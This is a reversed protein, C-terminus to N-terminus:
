MAGSELLAQYDAGSYGLEALIEANNEGLNPAPHLRTGLISAIAGQPFMIRGFLPHEIETLFGRAVLQPDQALELPTSVPSVPFARKQGEEVLESKTFRNAWAQLRDIIFDRKKIQNEEQALSPDAALEPDQVWEVFEPWRDKKSMQSIVWYGDKCPMAGSIPTIGGRSGRRETKTGSFTYEILAQEVFTELCQSFSVTAVQGKGTLKLAWLATATAVAVYLGAALYILHGGLLVPQRDPHGTLSLLGSRAFACLEPDEEVVKTLVLNPKVEMLEKEEVPFPTNIVLADAKKLMDLFLKGGSSSQLDLTMSRKGANLFQHYAASELNPENGLFPGLRRVNDGQPPEVRIVDHGAEALLRTSYAGSLGTVEIIRWM